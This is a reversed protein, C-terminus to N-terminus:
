AVGIVRCPAGDANRIKLPMIICKFRKGKLKELNVLNEVILIDNSLLIKHVEYPENDTTFSDIGVVSVKKKVFEEATEKTIVPNDKFFDESHMKKTQGTLLLVIDGEKVQKLDPKIIKQGAVDVVIAEGVLKELPYDDLKKGNKLMHYPADIHTGFHSDFALNKKKIFGEETMEEIKQKPSGPFLPTKDDIFMSLDVIM